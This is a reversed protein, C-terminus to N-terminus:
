DDTISVLALDDVSLWLSQCLGNEFFRNLSEISIVSWTKNRLRAEALFKIPGVDFTFIETLLAEFGLVHWPVM